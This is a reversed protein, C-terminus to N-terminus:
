PLLNEKFLIINELNHKMNNYMQELFSTYSIM